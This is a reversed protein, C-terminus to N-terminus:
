LPPPTDGQVLGEPWGNKPPGWEVHSGPGFGVRRHPVALEAKARWVKGKGIGLSAAATYIAAAKTWQRGILGFLLEHAAAWEAREGPSTSSEECDELTLDLNDGILLLPVGDRDELCYLRPLAPQPGSSKAHVLVLQQPERPHRTACLISRPVDRWAASGNIRSLLPGTQRKNFNRTIVIASGTRQAMALLGDLIERVATEQNLDAAGIYAAVPDLVVLAAKSQLVVLELDALSGPLRISAHQNGAMDPAPLILEWLDAGAAKLRPKLTSQFSDEGALLLVPAPASAEGPELGVGSTVSAVLRVLLCTKGCAPLGTILTLTGRPIWPNWLFSMPADSKSAFPALTWGAIELNPRDVVPPPKRKRAM